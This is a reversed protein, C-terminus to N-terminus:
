ELVEYAVGELYYTSYYDKGHAKMWQQMKSISSLEAACTEEHGEKGLRQQVGAALNGIEAQTLRRERLVGTVSVQAGTLERNFGGLDGKADVRVSYLRKDGTLFCHRGSHKCVHTVVGYVTISKGVYADAVSLM